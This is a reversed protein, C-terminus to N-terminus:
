NNILKHFIKHHYSCPKLVAPSPIESKKLRTVSLHLCLLASIHSEKAVTVDFSHFVRCPNGSSEWTAKWFWTKMSRDLM